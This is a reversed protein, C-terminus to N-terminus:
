FLGDDLIWPCLFLLFAVEGGDGRRGETRIKRFGWVEDKGRKGIWFEYVCLRVKQVM